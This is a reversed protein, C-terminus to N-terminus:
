TNRAFGKVLESRLFGQDELRRLRNRVANYCLNYDFVRGLDRHYDGISPELGRFKARLALLILLKDRRTLLNEKNMLGSPFFFNFYESTKKDILMIETLVRICNHRVERM